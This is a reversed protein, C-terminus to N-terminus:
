KQGSRGRAPRKAKAKKRAVYGFYDTAVAHAAAAADPSDQGSQQLMEALQEQLKPLDADSYGPAESQLQTRARDRANRSSHM